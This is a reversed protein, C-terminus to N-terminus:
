LNKIFCRRRRHQIHNFNKWISLVKYNTEFMGTTEVFQIGRSIMTSQIKSILLSPLGLKQFQPDVGVLLLDVETPHKLAQRIHYFGFPFLRGKAKQMAKSLNPLGVLFAVMKGEYRIVIIYEPQLVQLYKEAFRAALSEPFPAVFPLVDFTKNILSFVEKMSNVMEARSQLQKVELKNRQQIIEALRRAKEPIEGIQVRFELWDIEKQYGQKEIHERYYPFHQVSAVPPLYNFGEILLGQNDFNTFGLPGHITEMGKQRLWDEATSLLKSSVESDDIFEFRTFRGLKKGVKRNYNHNIITGIRGVCKGNKWATWFKVDCFSFALNTEGRLM